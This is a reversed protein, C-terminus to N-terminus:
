TSSIVSIKDGPNVQWVETQGTTMRIDTTAAAQTFAPQKSLKVCCIGEAQLRVFRNTIAASKAEAGISVQQSIVGEMNLAPAQGGTTAALNIAEDIRLFAM